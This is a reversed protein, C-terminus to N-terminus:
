YHYRLCLQMELFFHVLLALQLEKFGTHIKTVRKKHDSIREDISSILLNRKRAKIKRKKFVNELKKIWEKEKM